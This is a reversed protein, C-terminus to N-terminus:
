VPVSIDSTINAWNTGGDVSFQWRYSEGNSSISLDAFGYECFYTVSAPQESIVPSASAGAHENTKVFESAYEEGREGKFRVNNCTLTVESSYQVSGGCTNIVKCRYRYEIEAITLESIHLHSTGQGSFVPSAYDSNINEWTGSSSKNVQWLYAVDAENNLGIQLDAEGRDCFYEATAPQEVILIEGSGSVANTNEVSNKNHYEVGEGGVYRLANCSLIVVASTDSAGSCGGYVICRYRYSTHEENLDVIRLENSANGTYSPTTMNTTVNEWALGGDRSVQWKYSMASECVAELRLEAHGEDCM